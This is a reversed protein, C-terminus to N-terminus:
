YLVALSSYKRFSHNADNVSWFFSVRFIQDVSMDVAAGGGGIACKGASSTLLLGEGTVPAATPQEIEGGLEFWQSNLAHRLALSGRLTLAQRNAGVAGGLEMAVAGSDYIKSAGIYARFTGSGTAVADLFDCRIVFEFQSDPNVDVAKITFNLIDTEVNGAPNTIDVLNGNKAYSPAAGAGVLGSPSLTQTFPIGAPIQPDDPGFLVADIVAPTGAVASKFQVGSVNPLTNKEPEILIDSSYSGESGGERRAPKLKVKVAANGITWRLVNSTLEELTTSPDYTDKTQVLTLTKM